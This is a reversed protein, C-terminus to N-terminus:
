SRQNGKRTRLSKKLTEPKMDITKYQLYIRSIVFSIIIAAINLLPIWYPSLNRNEVWKQTFIVYVLILAIFILYSTIKYWNEKM